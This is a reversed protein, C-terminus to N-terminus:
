PSIELEDRDVRMWGFTMHPANFAHGVRGSPDVVIVGGSGGGIRELDVIAARAATSPDLGSRLSEAVTRGWVARIIAEGRGTASIAGLRDDAYTGAGIVASDGIRGLPKGEVGGTSTAAAVRGGSDVAVAGVTGHSYAGERKRWRELQWDTILEEPACIEVGHEHAFDRAGPGALFVAKGDDLIARALLVPNRVGSVVATAGARRQTGEMVSADMEVTGAATLVSGTGANFVPCNELEVVAACVADLSSSGTTLARWGADLARRCGERREAERESSARGAGGHIVIAPRLMLVISVVAGGVWAM